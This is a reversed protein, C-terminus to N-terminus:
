LKVGAVPDIYQHSYTQELLFSKEQKSMRFNSEFSIPPLYKLYLDKLDGEKSANVMYQFEDPELSCEIHHVFSHRSLCFHREIMKAGRDIAALSPLVGEEHGSYGIKINDSAFENVLVEINGLKLNENKCPYEAICHLINLKYDVFQNAIWSIEEITRGAVSVVIEKDKPVSARVGDILEKNMANSSAIKYMRLDYKLMWELSPIDQVTSFWEINLEDCKKGFRIYDEDTFEFLSRYDRYTKGYPSKYPLNLKEQSYFSGVEKKQMKIFTAGAKAAEEAMKLLVNLNGMHNTTFEAVFEINSM